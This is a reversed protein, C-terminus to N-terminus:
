KSRGMDLASDHMIRDNIDSSNRPYSEVESEYQNKEVKIIGEMM